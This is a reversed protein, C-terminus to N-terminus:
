GLWNFCFNKQCELCTILVGFPKSINIHHNNSTCTEMISQYIYKNVTVLLNTQQYPYLIQNKFDSIKQYSNITTDVIKRCMPCTNNTKFWTNTCNQCFKHSCNSFSVLEQELYCINCINTDGSM